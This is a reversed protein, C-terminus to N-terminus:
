RRFVLLFTGETADGGGTVEIEVGEYGLAYPAVQGAIEGGASDHVPSRPRFVKADSGLTAVLVVEAIGTAHVISVEATANVYPTVGPEYVIAELVGRVEASTFTNTGAASGAITAQQHNVSM